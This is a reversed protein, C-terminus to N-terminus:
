SDRGARAIEVRDICIGLDRPELFEQPPGRHVPSRIELSLRTKGPQLAAAPVTFRCDGMSSGVAVTAIERGEASVRVPVSGGGARQMAPAAARLTVALDGRSGLTPIVLAADGATWRAWRRMPKGGEKEWRM